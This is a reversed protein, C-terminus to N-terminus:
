AAQTGERPLRDRLEAWVAGAEALCQDRNPTEGAAEQCEALSPYHRDETRHQERTDYATM